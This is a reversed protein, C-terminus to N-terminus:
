SYLDLWHDIMEDLMTEFTYLPEWDTASKLKSADGRLADLEEPRFYREDITVHKEPDLDLKGFVYNVLEKVTHSVGTACVYDDPEDLQVIMWMAEVYDKAHGWDRSANLNGLPLTDAKGLKIRVAEKCVKNTVFNSGRRPSEHNFLIGNSVFLGYANRYNRALHYSFVKSCGYPSVPNMPTTERQYGDDDVTNGFMESSSAQYMRTDPKILRVAELLNMTSVGTAQATYIPQDFSIKVHSQAALNYIEDPAVEKVAYILSSLDTMDGYMLNLDRRIHEIRTTQTEAVSNRKLIGHVEYGKELLLEALYSGDQGNIGTILAKKM